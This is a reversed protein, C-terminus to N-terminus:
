KLFKYKIIFLYPQKIKIKLKYYLNVIAKVETSFLEFSVEDYTSLIELILVEQNKYPVIPIRPVLSFGTQYHSM